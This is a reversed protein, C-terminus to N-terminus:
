AFSFHVECSITTKLLFSFFFFRKVNTTHFTPKKNYQTSDKYCKHAYIVIDISLSFTNPKSLFSLLTLASQYYQIGSNM